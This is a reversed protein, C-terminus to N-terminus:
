VHLPSAGPISAHLAVDDAFCRRAKAALEADYFSEYAPALDRDFRDALRDMVPESRTSGVQRRFPEANDCGTLGFRQNLAALEDDLREVLALHDAPRDGPLGAVQAVLHHQLTRGQSRANDVGEIMQRFTAGRLSQERREDLFCWDTSDCVVWTWYFGVLRRLPDRVFLVREYADLAALGEPGVLFPDVKQLTPPDVGATQLFWSRVAKSGCKPSAIAVFRKAHNAIFYHAM